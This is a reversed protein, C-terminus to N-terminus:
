LRPQLWTGIQLPKAAIKFAFNHCAALDGRCTRQIFKGHGITDYELTSKLTRYLLTVM